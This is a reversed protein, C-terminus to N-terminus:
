ATTPLPYLTASLLIVGAVDVKIVPGSIGGYLGKSIAQEAELQNRELDSERGTLSQIRALLQAQRVEDEVRARALAARKSDALRTRALLTDKATDRMRVCRLDWNAFADPAAEMLRRLRWSKLNTDVYRPNRGHKDYPLDLFREIFDTSPEFGDSGSEISLHRFCLM